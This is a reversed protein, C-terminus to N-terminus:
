KPRIYYGSARWAGDPSKEFTVTEIAYQLNAFTADFQAIVFTGELKKGDPLPVSTQELASVLKRAELKGLPTRVSTLAQVWQVRTVKDRFLGSAESWSEAYKGEDIMGLWKEMSVVAAQKSADKSADKSAENSDQSGPEAEVMPPAPQALVAAGCGFLVIVGGAVVSVVPNV